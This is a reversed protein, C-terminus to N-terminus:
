KMRGPQVGMSVLDIFRQALILVDGRQLNCERHGDGVVLEQVVGDICTVRKTKNGWEELEIRWTFSLPSSENVVSTGENKLM